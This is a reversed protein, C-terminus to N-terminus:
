FPIDTERAIGTEEDVDVIYFRNTKHPTKVTMTVHWIYGPRVRTVRVYEVDHHMQYAFEVAAQVAFDRGLVNKETWAM